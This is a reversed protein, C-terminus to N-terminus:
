GRAARRYLTCLLAGVLMGVLIGILWAIPFLKAARSLYITLGTVLVANVLAPVAVSAATRRALVVLIAILGLWGALAMVAWIQLAESDTPSLPAEILDLIMLIGGTMVGVLVGATGCTGLRRFLPVLSLSRRM